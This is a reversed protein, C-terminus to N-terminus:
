SWWGRPRSPAARSPDVVRETAASASPNARLAGAFGLAALLPIVGLATIAGSLGLLDGALGGAFGAAAYGIGICGTYWAMVVGANAGQRLEMLAALGGTSAVAFGIGNVAALMGLLLPDAANAIAVFAASQLVCGGAVLWRIRDASYVAGTVFRFCLAAASYGAIIPGIVADAAGQAQLHPSLLVQVSGDGLTFVMTAALLAILPARR